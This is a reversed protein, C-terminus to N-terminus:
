QFHHSKIPWLFRLLLTATVCQKFSVEVKVTNTVTQSGSIDMLEAPSNFSCAMHAKWGINTKWQLQM